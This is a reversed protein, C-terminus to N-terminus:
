FQNRYKCKECCNLITQNDCSDFLHDKTIGHYYQSINVNVNKLPCHYNIRKINNKIQTM